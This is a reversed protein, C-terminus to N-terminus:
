VSVSSSSMCALCKLVSVASSSIEHKLLNTQIRLGFCTLSQKRSSICHFKEIVVGQFLSVEIEMIVGQFIEEIGVGQFSSM